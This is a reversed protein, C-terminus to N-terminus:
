KFVFRFTSSRPKAVLGLSSYRQLGTTGTGNANELDENVENHSIAARLKGHGNLTPKTTFVPPSLLEKKDDTGHPSAKDEDEEAIPEPRHLELSRHHDVKGNKKIEVMEEEDDDYIPEFEIPRYLM